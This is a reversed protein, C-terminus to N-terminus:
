SNMANNAHRQSTATVIATTSLCVRARVCLGTPPRARVPLWAWACASEVTGAQDTRGRRRCCCCGALWVAVGAQWPRIYRGHTLLTNYLIPFVFVRARHM